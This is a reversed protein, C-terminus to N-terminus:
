PRPRKRLDPLIPQGKKISNHNVINYGIEGHSALIGSLFNATGYFWYFGCNLLFAILMLSIAPWNFLEVKKM